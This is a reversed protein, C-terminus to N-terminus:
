VLPGDKTTYKQTGKWWEADTNLNPLWDALEVASSTWNPPVGEVKVKPVLWDLPKPIGGDPPNVNPLLFDSEPTPLLKPKGFPPEAVPSLNPDFEPESPFVFENGVTSVTCNPDAVVLLLSPPNLNLAGVAVPSEAFCSSLGALALKWNPTDSVLLSLAGGCMSENFDASGLLVLKPNPTCGVWTNFWSVSLLVFDFADKEKPVLLASVEVTFTPPVTVSCFCVDAGLVVNVNPAFAGVSPLLGGGVRRDVNLKLALLGGADSDVSFATYLNPAVDDSVASVVLGASTGLLLLAPNLKPPM